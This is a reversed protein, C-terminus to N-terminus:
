RWRSYSSATAASYGDEDDRRAVQPVPATQTTGAAAGVRPQSALVPEQPRAGPAVYAQPAPANAMMNTERRGHAGGWTPTPQWHVAPQPVPAPPPATKEAAVKRGAVFGAPPPGDSDSAAGSERNMNVGAAPHRPVPNGAGNRGFVDYGHNAGNRPSWAPPQDHRPYGGDQHDRRPSRGTGHDTNSGYDNKSCCDFPLCM